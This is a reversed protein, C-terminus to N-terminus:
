FLRLQQSHLKEEHIQNQIYKRITISTTKDNVSTIFYGRGWVNGKGTQLIPFEQKLVSASKCKLIKVVDCPKDTPDTSLYLHVHDSEVTLAEIKWEYETAIQALIEKCRQKHVSYFKKYRYKTIWVIHYKLSYVAHDSKNFYELPM